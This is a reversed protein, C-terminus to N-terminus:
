GEARDIQRGQSKNAIRTVTGNPVYWLAGEDDQVTTVRLSVHVVRGSAPGIDIVDGVGYQDELIMFLGAIMDKILSQAGLGLGVGVVGISTVLVAVNVGLRELILAVAVIWVTVTIISNLVSRATQARTARREAAYAAAAPKILPQPRSAKVGRLVTLGRAMRGTAHNVLGHAVAVVVFASILIIVIALPTGILWQVWGPWDRAYDPVEAARSGAAAASAMM